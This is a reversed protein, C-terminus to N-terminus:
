CACPSGTAGPGCTVCTGCNTVGIGTPACGLPYSPGTSLGVADPAAAPQPRFVSEWGFAQGGVQLDLDFEGM